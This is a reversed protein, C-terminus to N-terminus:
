RSSPTRRDRAGTLVRDLSFAGGGNAVVSLAIAIALLHYEFGETGAPLNGFWNMFFGNGIHTTMAVTMFVALSLGVLRSAIGALLLIPGGFELLISAVALPAPIGLTGTMWAVTANFGYGGFAGLLHQAGHPLLVSALTIRLLAPTLNPQTALLRTVLSETSGTVFPRSLHTPYTQM